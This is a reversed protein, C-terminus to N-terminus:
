QKQQRITSSAPSTPISKALGKLVKITKEDMVIGRGTVFTPPTLEQATTSGSIMEDGFTNEESSSSNSSSDSDTTAEDDCPSKRKTGSKKGMHRADNAIISAIFEEHSRLRHDELLMDVNKEALLANAAASSSSAAAEDEEKKQLKAAIHDEIRKRLKTNEERLLELSQELTSTLSKKRLRSKKAHKRNRERRVELEVPSLNRGTAEEQHLKSSSMATNSSARSNTRLGGGGLDVARLKTAGEPTLKWKQYSNAESASQQSSSKRKTGSSKNSSTKSSSSSGSSMDQEDAKKLAARALSYCASSKTSSMTTATATTTSTTTTNSAQMSIVPLPPQSSLPSHHHRDQGQQLESMQADIIQQNKLITERQKDLVCQINNANHLNNTNNGIPTPSMLQPPQPLAIGCCDQACNSSAIHAPTNMSTNNNNMSRVNMDGLHISTTLEPISMSVVGNDTDNAIIPLHVPSVTAYKPIAMIAPANNNSNSSNNNVEDRNTRPRDYNPMASSTSSSCQITSDNDTFFGLGKIMGEIEDDTIDTIGDSIVSEPCGVTGFGTMTPANVPGVGWTADMM